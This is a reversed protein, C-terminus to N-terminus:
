AAVPLAQGANKLTDAAMNQAALAREQEQQQARDERIQQVLETPKLWNAPFGRNRATDREIQDLDYNDLLEPRIEWIPLQTAQVDLWANTEVAKIALAIKSNYTINPDPVYLQGTAADEQVLEQPIEPFAGARMLIGWVRKLLPNYHESNRSSTTAALLTLKEGNLLSAEYATIKTTDRSSFMRFLDVFYADEIAKRKAQIREISAEMKGESLWEEPKAGSQTPSYYTVGSARIDIQGEHTDPVLLRPWALVEALADTHKELYNAQRADPMAAWSPCWGYYEDGWKLFRSVFVPMEYFGAERLTHKTAVDVHCSAIPKNAGDNKTIDYDTRPEIAHLISRKQDLQDKKNKDEFMRKVQAPLADMGFEQMMQRPTMQYERYVTDVMGDKDESIAYSGITFNQFNLLSKEGEECFMAATGYAGYDLLDELERDYFNSAAIAAQAIETCQTFWQEVEDNGKLANPPGFTFWPSGAPTNSSMMGRGFTLNAQVATSDYLNAEPYTTPTLIKNIIQGARRPQVYYAIEEFWSQWVALNSKLQNWRQITRSAIEDSHSDQEKKM